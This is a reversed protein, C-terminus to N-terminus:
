PMPRALCLLGACLASALPAEAIPVSALGELPFLMLSWPPLTPAQSPLDVLLAICALCSQQQAFANVGTFPDFPSAVSPTRYVGTFSFTLNAPQGGLTGGGSAQLTSDEDSGLGSITVSGTTM